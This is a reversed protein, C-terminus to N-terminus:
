LDGDKYWFYSINAAPRDLKVFGQEDVYKAAEVQTHFSTNARWDRKWVLRGGPFRKLNYVYVTYYYVTEAEWNVSWSRTSHRQIVAATINVKSGM